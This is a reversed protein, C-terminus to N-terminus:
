VAVLTIPLSQHRRIINNTAWIPRGAVEIRDVREALARLMAATEMRALAQGACAHVGNGFGLHRGADRRIDFVDPRSWEREDRNASAYLVVVRAGAPIPTDAIRTDRVVRRAFARLPSEYRIIENIAGPILTPDEKLLQWQEPHTGLLYIANSIASITTDLSPALYDIMLAACQKQSVGGADASALLDDIMSGGLVNRSRVIRRAFHMMQLSRPGAKIARWNLPGLADFTAGGWDILHERKDRPWGVFDPVVALPLASALDTVADVTGHRLAAEVIDCARQEITDGLARLSRPLLRHAVLKRRRDHDAGDSNLTTGRGLRNSIPNLAVGNGSIFLSDDRLAAKCETYRPLAYARHRRLWVVPGLQRLEHYSPYPDTAAAETYLNPRYAAVGRPANRM